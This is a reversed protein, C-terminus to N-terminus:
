FESHTGVTYLARSSRAVEFNEGINFKLFPRYDTVPNIVCMSYATATVEGIGSGCCVITKSEPHIAYMRTTELVDRRYAVISAYPM